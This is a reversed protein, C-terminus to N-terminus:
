KRETLRVTVVRGKDALNMGRYMAITNLAAQKQPPLASWIEDTMVIWRPWQAISTVRLFDDKQERLTGGQHFALSPEKYDIMIEEGPITAGRAIMDHAIRPSLRLFDAFPLYALYAIMVIGAFGAGMVGGAARLRKMAFMAFVCAAYILTGASLAATSASPIEFKRVAMWPVLALMGVVVMWVVIGIFFGFDSFAKHRGRIGRVLADATLFALPPFTPLIYHPLKTQVIEFMIWPGVVAALAFRIPALRRRKWALIITGPLLLSWPFYTAWITVLYYGPPGKHGELGSQMREVVDHRISHMIFGPSRQEVLIIWPLVIAGVILVVLASKLLVRRDGRGALSLTLTLTSCTTAGSSTRGEGRCEGKCPSPSIRTLTWFAILTMGQIGLVVPGKTLGALGTAIAYVVVTAWSRRGTIFLWICIQGITVWLLLMADTLCMKGAAVALASTALVFATWGARASLRWKRLTLYIVGVTATMAVGSPLRAAFADDGFMRMCSAQCWYILPPKAYRVADYLRPLVWDGSQMMQRSCQAYRPEDRDWLAVRGNGALYFGLVLLMLLWFRPNGM